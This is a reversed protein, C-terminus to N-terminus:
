DPSPDEKVSLVRFEEDVDLVATKQYGQITLKWIKGTHSVGLLKAVFADASRGATFFGRSMKDTPYVLERIWEKKGLERNYTVRKERTDLIHEDMAKVVKEVADATDTAKLRLQRVYIRRGPQFSTIADQDIYFKMNKALQVHAPFTESQHETYTWWTLHSAKDYVILLRGSIRPGLFQFQINTEIVEINVSGGNSSIAM